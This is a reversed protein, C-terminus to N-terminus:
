VPYPQLLITYLRKVIFLHIGCKGARRASYHINNHLSVAAGATATYHLGASWELGVWEM